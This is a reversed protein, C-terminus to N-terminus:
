VEEFIMAQRSVMFSRIADATEAPLDVFHVGMGPVMAEDALNTVWRVEADINFLTTDGPLSFRLGIRTGVPLTDRTAIFLGGQSINRSFGTYFNDDGVFRVRVELPMRPPRPEPPPCLDPSPTNSVQTM